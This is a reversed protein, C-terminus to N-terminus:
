RSTTPAGSTTGTTAGAPCDGTEGPATTASTFGASTTTGPAPWSVDHDQDATHDWGPTVLSFGPHVLPRVVLDLATPETGDPGILTSKDVKVVNTEGTDTIACTLHVGYFDRDNRLVTTTVTAAAM